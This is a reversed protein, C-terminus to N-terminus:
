EVFRYYCSAVLGLVRKGGESVFTGCWETESSHFLSQTEKLSPNSDIREGDSSFFNTIDDDTPM